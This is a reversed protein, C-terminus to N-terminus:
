REGGLSGLLLDCRATEEQFAPNTRTDDKPHIEVEHRVSTGHRALFIRFPRKRLRTDVLAGPQGPEHATPPNADLSQSMGLLRATALRSLDEQRGEERASAQRKPLAQIGLVRGAPGELRDLPFLGVKKQDAVLGIKGLDGSPKEKRFLHRGYDRQRGAAQEPKLALASFFPLDPTKEPHEPRLRQTSPLPDSSQPM